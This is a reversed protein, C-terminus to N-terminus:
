SALFQPMLDSRNIKWETTKAALESFHEADDPTIGAGTMMVPVLDRTRERMKWPMSHCPTIMVRTDKNKELYTKIKSFIFYDAAELVGIKRRLDGRWSAEECDDIHMCVFDKEQLADLMMRSRKEYSESLDEDAEDAEIATMGTLRAIGAAYEVSSIMAGSLDYLQQFKEPQFRRGQGWFWIMNAPNENLDVRVQNIEHDQLLLKADYMLKKLLEAGPGKPLYANLSKGTIDRPSYTKASLAEYGHSDKIVAINRYASGAFFRVFGSSLRKNLFNLLAKAEKNSIKGATPDALIGDSETVFNMRFPVENEELQLELNAAELRARGPYAKEPDYGLLSMLTMDPTVTIRESALKTLGLKGSQTLAHLNPLKSVEFLTKGSLEDCPHDTAGSIAVSIYKM